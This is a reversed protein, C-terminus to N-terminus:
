YDMRRLRGCGHSWRGPRGLTGAWQYSYPVGNEDATAGLDEIEFSVWPQSYPSGPEPDLLFYDENRVAGVGANTNINKIVVNQIDLAAVEGGPEGASHADDIPPAGAWIDQPGWPNPGSGAGAASAQGNPLGLGAGSGVGGGTSIPVAGEGRRQEGKDDLWQWRRIYRWWDREARLLWYRELYAGRRVWLWLYLERLEYAGPYETVEFELWFTNGVATGSGKASVTANGKLHKLPFDVVVEAAADVEVDEIFGMYGNGYKAGPSIRVQYTGDYVYDFAYYGDENTQTSQYYWGQQSSLSM